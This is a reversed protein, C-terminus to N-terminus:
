ACRLDWEILSRVDILVGNVIEGGSVGSEGCGIGGSVRCGIGGTGRAIGDPISRMSRRVFDGAAVSARM